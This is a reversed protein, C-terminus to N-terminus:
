IVIVILGLRIDRALIHVDLLISHYVLLYIHEAM